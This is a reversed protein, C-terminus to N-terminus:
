KSAELVKQVKEPLRKFFDDGYDTFEFVVPLVFDGGGVPKTLKPASEIRLLRGSREDLRLTVSTKEEVRRYGSSFPLALHHTDPNAEPFALTVVGDSRSERVKDGGAQVAAQTREVVTQFVKGVLDHMKLIKEYTGLIEKTYFDKVFDKEEWPESEKRRLFVRPYSKKDEPRMLFIFELNNGAPETGKAYAAGITKERNSWAWAECKVWDITKDGSKLDISAVLRAQTIKEFAHRLLEASGKPEQASGVLCAALVFTVRCEM